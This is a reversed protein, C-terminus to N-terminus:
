KKWPIEVREDKKIEEIHKILRQQIETPMDGISMEVMAVLGVLMVGREVAVNFWWDRDKELNKTINIIIKSM